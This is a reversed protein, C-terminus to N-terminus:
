KSLTAMKIIKDAILQMVTEIGKVDHPILVINKNRFAMFANEREENSSCLKIYLNFKPIYFDFWPLSNYYFRRYLCVDILVDHEEKINEAIKLKLRSSKKIRNCRENFADLFKYHYDYKLKMEDAYSMLEKKNM